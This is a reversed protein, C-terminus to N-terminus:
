MVEESEELQGGTTFEPALADQDDASATVEQQQPQQPRHGNLHTNYSSFSMEESTRFDKKTQKQQETTVIDEIGEICFEIGMDEELMDDLQQDEETRWTGKWTAYDPSDWTVKPCEEIKGEHLVAQAYQRGMRFVLYAPLIDLLSEALSSRDKYATFYVTGNKSDTGSRAHDMSHFLKQSDSDEDAGTLPYTITSLVTRLTINGNGYAFAKNLYHIVHVRTIVLNGMVAVHKRLM